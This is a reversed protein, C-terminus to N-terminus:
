SRREARVQEYVSTIESVVGEPRYAEGVLRAATGLRLREAPNKALESLAGALSAEDRSRFLRGNVGDVIVEAPGGEDAAIVPLGALMGEIVVQGFPEPVVSAHVLVDLTALEAFVDERFGRFEVRDDIGVRKALSLIQQEYDEEGFMASGIVVAREPGAPFARAFAKLFLDQGKWPTIRGVIGFTTGSSSSMRAKRLGHAPAMVVNPVVASIVRKDRLGLTDLTATSNAIVGTALRPLLFRVAAVAPRPLYDTSIRDHAHWVVPIGAGRAAIGAYIAAKLSNTHVVDPQLQRLRRTLRAVYAVLQGLAAISIDQPRVAEKRIDRAAEALPLVEVSIGATHLRRVLPGDEGLIVHANVASLHPLLRLLALEAGSLRAVHDVYVVRLRSDEARGALRQYLAHHGEAVTPWSFQEAFRRTAERSPVEGDAAKRLRDAWSRADQSQVILTPDLRHVAEPLGGVDSVLSPTGCGAAELVVLGFGELSLSPLVTVDAARYVERLEEDPLAGLIRVRGALGRAEARQAFRARQPGDGVILLTSRGALQGDLESWADLLLDIGMRPVLRRVSAVVFADEALGLQARAASRSGTTFFGLPVGPPHVEVLWPSVGYGEVLVRRFAGSLTVFADAHHLARRELARRLRLRLRSTDGASVNEEAWPGHFHFVTPRGRLRGFRLPLAAYLAFHADVVDAGHAHQQSARWFRWL